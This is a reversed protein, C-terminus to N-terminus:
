CSFICEEPTVPGRGERFGLAGSFLKAEGSGAKCFRWARLVACAGAHFLRGLLAHAEYLMVKIHHVGKLHM